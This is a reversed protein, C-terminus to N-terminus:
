FTETSNAISSKHITSLKSMAFIAAKVRKEVVRKSFSAQLIVGMKAMKKCVLSNFNNTRLIPTDQKEGNLLNFKIACCACHIQKM